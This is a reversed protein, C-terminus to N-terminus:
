MRKSCPKELVFFNLKDEIIIPDEAPIQNSSGRIRDLLELIKTQDKKPINGRDFDYACLNQIDDFEATVKFEGQDTLNFRGAHIAQVAKTLALTEDDFLHFFQQFDSDPRPEVVLVRGCPRLVRFAEKLAPDSEQHHLSLTFLVLDFSNDPFDLNQGSGTKFRIVPAASLDVLALAANIRDEDPDIATYSRTNQALFISMKGDGCGIELVDRDSFDVVRHMIEIQHRKEDYNMTISRWISLPSKIPCGKPGPGSMALAKTSHCTAWAKIEPLCNM